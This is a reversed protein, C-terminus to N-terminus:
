ASHTKRKKHPLLYRSQWSLTLILVFYVANAPAQLNFDVTIHILMGIIAMMSGFAIGKMLSNKRNRMTHISQMLSVFVIFALLLTFPIGYEITFQLYDNHAHDYFLKIDDGQVMPFITYFSGAGTGTLPYKKILELGYINVEDRTEQSLSTQEIRSKVKDLGFWSGLIFTDIVFLSILLITLNKSRQKFYFFAFVGTVTMAIFFAANGMRSRSMVLGIVMLALAIRLVAKGQLLSGIFDRLKAKTSNHDQQSLNAVLLGIGMSLSLLLFNAFHNKYIFGGTAISTNSVEFVWSVNNGSLAQLSGYVAQFTGSLVMVIVISKLRKETNVLLLSLLMLCFYALGKFSAVQTQSSDLSLTKLNEPSHQYIEALDPSLFLLLEQPLPLYQVVLWLQVSFFSVLLLKYPALKKLINEDNKIAFLIYIALLSFAVIEIIGWGWPRNSGLPIPLWFILLLFSSFLASNIKSM